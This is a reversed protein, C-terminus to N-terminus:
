EKLCGIRIIFNTESVEAFIVTVLNLRFGDLLEAYPVHPRGAPFQAVGASMTHMCYDNFSGGRSGFQLNECRHKNLRQPLQVRRKSLHYRTRMSQYGKAKLAVLLKSVDFFGGLSVCDCRLLSCDEFWCVTSAWRCRPLSHCRTASWM